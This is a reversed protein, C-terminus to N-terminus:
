LKLLKEVDEPPMIGQYVINGEKDILVFAPIGQVKYSRTVKQDSDYLIKWPVPHAEQYKKLRELTDGTGVNIGLIELKNEDISHRLKIVDPKVVTCNACWTAWFYLLVAKEGKYQSLKVTAGQLDQIEFEVSPGKEANGGGLLGGLWSKEASEATSNPFGSILHIGILIALAIGVWKRGVDKM